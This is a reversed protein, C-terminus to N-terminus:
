SQIDRRAVRSLKPRYVAVTHKTADYLIKHLFSTRLVANDHKLGWTAASADKM